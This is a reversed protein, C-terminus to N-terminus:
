EKTFGYLEIEAAERAACAEEFSPGYYVITKKDDKSIRAEWVGREERWRVGTRGSTNTSKMRQDFSQVSFDAWECTEPSYIKAGNVRNISHKDPREGMDALFNEFSGGKSPTWRDCVTVDSYFDAYEDTTARSLMKQWSTYTGTDSMGHKSMRKSVLKGEVKSTKAPVFSCGCDEKGEHLLRNGGIKILNGCDCICEWIISNNSNKEQTPSLATLKGFKRGTLDVVRAPRSCGCTSGKSYRLNFLQREIINGCFCQLKLVRQLNGRKDRISELEEIVELYGFKHGSEYINKKSM